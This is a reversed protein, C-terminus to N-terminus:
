GYLEKFRDMLIRKVNAIFEDGHDRMMAKDWEKTALMHFEKNYDIPRGTPTKKKDKISYFGVLVGHKYIPLNPGYVEGVYMYHAYSKNSGEAKAFYRVHDKTVEVSGSKGQEQSLFGEKMPVYPNCMRKFENHVQLMVYDNKLAEFKKALKDTDIDVQININVGM